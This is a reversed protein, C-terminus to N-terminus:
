RNNYINLANGLCNFFYNDRQKPPHYMGGLLWKCKRFNLEIFMGEIDEPFSHDLLQKCPIDERTYILVGGGKDGNVSRNFRFPESFGNIIFQSNPYSDHLKSESIVMIDINGPIIVKLSDFKEALSNVNLHGVIIRNINKVRIEKLISTVEQDNM